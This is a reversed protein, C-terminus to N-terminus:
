QEEARLHRVAYDNMFIYKLVVSAYDLAENDNLMVGFRSFHLNKFEEVQAPTPTPISIQM